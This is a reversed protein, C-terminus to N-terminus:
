IEERMNNFVSLVDEMTLGNVEIRLPKLRRLVLDARETELYAREALAEYQPKVKETFERIDRLAELLDGYAKHARAYAARKQRRDARSLLFETM